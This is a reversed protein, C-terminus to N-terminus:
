FKQLQSFFSSLYGFCISKAIPRVELALNHANWIAAMGTQYLYVDDESVDKVGRSSPGVALDKQGADSEEQNDSPNDHILVGAIRRRLARKASAAASLPLNRGYREELYVNHDSGMDDRQADRSPEFSALTPSSPLKSNNVSYHRNHGRTPFRSSTPSIPRARLNDDSLVSLCKEALRSSIGMGSHQWFEKAVPLTDADFFVIHLDVSDASSQKNIGSSPSSGTIQNDEPFVFLHLLRATLPAGSPSKRRQIHQRCQEAIKQTPFLM